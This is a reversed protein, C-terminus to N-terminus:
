DAEFLLRRLIRAGPRTVMDQATLRVRAEAITFLRRQLMDEVMRELQPQGLTPALDIATRLATTVPIGRLVTVDEQPLDDYHIILERGGSRIRETPCGNADVFPEWLADLEDDGGYGDDDDDPDAEPDPGDEDFRCGCSMMQGRCVPCEQIDCGLHHFGGPPTGCDGCRARASWGRESGWPRMEIREGARHLAEVTCSVGVTMEQECWQCVAM